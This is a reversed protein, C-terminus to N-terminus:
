AVDERTRPRRRPLLSDRVASTDLERAVPAPCNHAVERILEDSAYGARVLIPHGGDEPVVYGTGPLDRKIRHCHAGTLAATEGLVMTTESIDKLRLGVMQTFLGRSPIVEKRPDQLCAFVMFGPARGQSCLLNIATEARRQLERENNYATLAALEDIMVIHLPNEPTASHSRQTGAYQRAREQMDAVLDELLAVAEVADTAVSTFLERGMLVEMGAKLDIGHLHVSGTRVAPALALAFSWFVSGKGAGSSGAVLTHPGLALRWPRGDEQRGLIVHDLSQVEVPVASPFVARLNEGVTFILLVDSTGHAELRLRSAQVATRMAESAAAFHELTQGLLPTVLLEIHPGRVRRRQITPVAGERELGCSTCVDTWAHAIARAKRRGTVASSCRAYSAPHRRAWLRLGAAVLLALVLALLSWWPIWWAMAGAFCLLAPRTFVARVLQIWWRVEDHLSM